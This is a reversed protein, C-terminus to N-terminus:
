RRTWLLAQMVSSVVVTVLLTSFAVQVPKTKTGDRLKSEWAPILSCAQLSVELEAHMNTAFGVVVVSTVEVKSDIVFEVVLGSGVVVVATADEETM